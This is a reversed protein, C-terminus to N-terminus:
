QPKKKADDLLAEFDDRSRLVALAPDEQLRTVDRYGAAVAERLTALAADAYERQRAQDEPKGKVALDAVWSLDRAVRYLENGNGPWLKRRELTAAFADPLRDTHREIEGLTGYNANLLRRYDAVQPAKGFALKMHDIGQHLVERAEDCRELRGLVLGLNNLTRGLDARYDLNDKDAGVLQELVARSQQLAHMEEQRHKLAGHTASVNFHALALQQQYSRVDPARKVLKDLIDRAEELAQLGKARDDRANHGIGLQM